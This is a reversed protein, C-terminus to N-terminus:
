KNMERILKDWSTMSDTDQDIDGDLNIESTKSNVSKTKSGVSNDSIAIEYAIPNRQNEVTRAVYTFQGFATCHILGATSSEINSKVNEVTDKSIELPNIVVLLTKGAMSCISSLATFDMYLANNVGGKGTSANDTKIFFFPRFSDIALVQGLDDSNLFRDIIEMLREPNHMSPIEPEGFRIYKINFRKVLENTLKSKGSGTAGFIGIVGAPIDISSDSADDRRKIKDIVLTIKAAFSNDHDLWTLDPDKMAKEQWSDLSQMYASSNTAKSGYKDFGAFSVYYDDGSDKTRILGDIFGNDFRETIRESKESIGEILSPDKSIEEDLEDQVVKDSAM